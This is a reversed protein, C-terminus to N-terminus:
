HDVVVCRIKSPWLRVLWLEHRRMPRLKELLNPLHLFADDDVKMLYDYPREERSLESGYMKGMMYLYEYSKGDNM